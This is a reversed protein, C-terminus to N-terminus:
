TKQESGAFHTSFRGLSRGISYQSVGLEEAAQKVTKGDRLIM